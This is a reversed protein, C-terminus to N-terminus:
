NFYGPRKEDEMFINYEVEYKVRDGMDDIMIPDKLLIEERKKKIDINSQPAPKVAWNLEKCEGEEECMSSYAITHEPRDGLDSIKRISIKKPVGEEENKHYYPM